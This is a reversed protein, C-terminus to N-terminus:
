PRLYASEPHISNPDSDAPIAAEELHREDAPIGGTRIITNTERHRIALNKWEYQKPNSKALEETAINVAYAFETRGEPLDLKRFSIKWALDPMQAASALIVECGTRRRLKWPASPVLIPVGFSTIWTGGPGGYATSGYHIIGGEQLTRYMWRPNEDPFHMRNWREGPALRCKRCYLPMDTYRSTVVDITYGAMGMLVHLGREDGFHPVLLLVGRGGALSEDLLDRGNWTVGALISAPSEKMIRFLSFLNREHTRWYGQITEEFWRNSSGPFVRRLHDMYLASSRKSLRFRVRSVATSLRDLSAPDRFIKVCIFLLRYYISSLTIGSM